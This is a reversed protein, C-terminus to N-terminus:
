DAMAHSDSGHKKPRYWPKLGILLARRTLAHTAVPSTLAVFAIILLLKASNITWGEFVMMGALFMMIGLTDVKGAAHSRTYFDPMRNLGISGVLMFFVGGLMLLVALIHFLLTMM